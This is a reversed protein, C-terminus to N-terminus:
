NFTITKPLQASHPHDTGSYVKLHTLLQRGLRNHPLMGKVANTIIREPYDQRVKRLSIQTVGGPYGSHRFYTKDKEKNGTVKVKEANVVVVFDGMDMHPTFFPKKKGRIIQAIESALRGLTQGEADVIFWERSIENARISRTEM